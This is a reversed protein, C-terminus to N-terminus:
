PHLSNRCAKKTKSALSRNREQLTSQVIDFHIIRGVWGEQVEYETDGKKKVVMKPDVVNVAEFGETQILM